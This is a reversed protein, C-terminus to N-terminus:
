LIMPDNLNAFVELIMMDLRPSFVVKDILGSCQTGHGVTEQVIGPIMFKMVVKSM